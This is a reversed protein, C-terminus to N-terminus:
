PKMVFFEAKTLPTKSKPVSSREPAFAVPAFVFQRTHETLLPRLRVFTLSGLETPRVTLTLFTTDLPLARVAFVASLWKSVELIRGM